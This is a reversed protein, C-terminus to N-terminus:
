ELTFLGKVPLDSGSSRGITVVVAAHVVGPKDVSTWQPTGNPKRTSNGGLMRITHQATNPYLVHTVIRETRLRPKCRDMLSSLGAEQRAVENVTHPTMVAMIKASSNLLKM